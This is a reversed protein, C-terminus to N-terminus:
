TVQDKLLCDNFTLKLLRPQTKEWASRPPESIQEPVRAPQSPPELSQEIEPESSPINAPQPVGTFVQELLPM